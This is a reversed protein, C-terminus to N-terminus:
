TPNDGFVDLPLLRLKSQKKESAFFLGRLGTESMSTGHTPQGDPTKVGGAVSIGPLFFDEIGTGKQQVPTDILGVVVQGCDSSATPKLDIRSSPSDTLWDHCRPRPSPYM